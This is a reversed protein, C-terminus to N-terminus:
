PRFTVILNTGIGFDTYEQADGNSRNDVYSASVTWRYNDMFRYGSSAFLTHTQDERSSDGAQLYQYDKRDFEYTASFDIKRSYDFLYTFQAGYTNKETDNLGGTTQGLFDEQVDISSEFNASASAYLQQHSGLQVPRNVNLSAVHRELFDDSLEVLSGQSRTMKEYRYGGGLIWQGIPYNVRNGLRTLNFDLADNDSDLYNVTQHSGTLSLSLDTPLEPRYGLRLKNSYFLDSEPNNGDPVNFANDTYQTSVIPQITFPRHEPKRRLLRQRGLDGSDDRRPPPRLRDDEETEQGTLESWDRDQLEMLRQMQDAQDADQGWVTGTFVLLTCFLIIRSFKKLFSFFM